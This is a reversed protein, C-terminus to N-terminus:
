EDWLEFTRTTLRFPLQVGSASVFDAAYMVPHAATAGMASVPLRPELRGHELVYNKLVPSNSKDLRSLRATTDIGKAPSFFAVDQPVTQPAPKRPSGFPIPLEIPRGSSISRAM